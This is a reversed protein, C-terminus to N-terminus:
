GQRAALKFWEEFTADLPSGFTFRVLVYNWRAAITDIQAATLSRKWVGGAVHTAAGSAILSTVGNPSLVEANATGGTVATGNADTIVATKLDTDNGRYITAM